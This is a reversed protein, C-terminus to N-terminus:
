PLKEIRRDPDFRLGDGIQDITLLPAPAITSWRVQARDSDIRGTETRVRRTLYNIGIGASDGSNRAVYTYDWGILRLADDRWRLTFRTTGAAWGGMSMMRHLHLSVGGRGIGLSGEEIWDMECPNDRRPILRANAVVRRYGGGPVALAIALIRPNTDFPDDCMRAPVRLAPDDGRLLLALDARGDGDLDGDAQMELRWGRPVFGAADSATAVIQPLAVPPLDQARAPFSILALAALIRPLM